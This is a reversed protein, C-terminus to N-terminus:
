PKTGLVSWSMGNVSTTIIDLLGADASVQRAEDETWYNAIRPLLQDLVISRLHWFRFTSALRLYQSKHVPTKLYLFLPVTLVWSIVSVVTMPVRATIKRTPELFSLLKENGERGYVWILVRGGPKVLSALSRVAGVPDALHHVVGICFAIDPQEEDPLTADYISQVAVSVGDLGDLNRRAVAVTAEEVDFALIRRAGWKSMWATNRGNGCGADVLYRGALDKAELPQVWAAFQEEYEPIVESFHTWEYGFRDPSGLRDRGGPQPPAETL